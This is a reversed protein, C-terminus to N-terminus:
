PSPSSLPARTAIVGRMVVRGDDDRVVVRDFMGLDRDLDEWMIGSGAADLKEIAGARMSGGGPGRLWVTFPVQKAQAPPVGNVLVVVMDLISPSVLTLASGGGGDDSAPGLTGLFVEGDPDAFDASSLIRSFKEAASQQQLTTVLVAEDSRSARGAMVAGWGLGSVALMSTLVAAVALRGRRPAHSSPRGAASRVAAVVSDELAPGPEAPQVSFGLVAAASEMEAAEKRCAACWALHRDIGVVERAPLAGLAREALTERVTLCSM